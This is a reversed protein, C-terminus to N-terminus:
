STFFASQPVPPPPPSAAGGASGMAGVDEGGHYASSLPMSQALAGSSGQYSQYKNVTSYGSAFNTPAAANTALLRQSHGPTTSTGFSTSTLSLMPPARYRSGPIAGTLQLQADTVQQNLWRIMQENSQLQQRSEEVKSRLEANEAAVLGRDARLTEIAQTLTQLEKLASALAQERGQLEEEQRVIIAQKRRLKEKGLKFDNQLRPFRFPM